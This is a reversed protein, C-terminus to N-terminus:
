LKFEKPYRLVTSAAVRLRQQRDYKKRLSSSTDKTLDELKIPHEVIELIESKQMEDIIGNGLNLVLISLGNDKLSLSGVVRTKKDLFESINIGRLSMKLFFLKRNFKYLKAENEPVVFFGLSGQNELIGKEELIRIAKRVTPVSVKITEAITKITPIKENAAWTGLNIMREIYALAVATPTYGTKSRPM